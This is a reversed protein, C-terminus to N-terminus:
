SEILVAGEHLPRVTRQYISLWGIEKKPPAALLNKRREALVSEPVELDIVKKAVDISIPDGNAALALPGGEAAEPTAEVALLTKNVLGSAHGDTIVAVKGTLGSGDLAFVFGSAHGFGPGGKLGLGRLIVVDGEKIKGEKLWTLAEHEDDFVVAPGKFTLPRDDIVALKIIASDPTLSGHVINISPRTSLPRSVPRIVEEDAIRVGKLNEGVTHGTVTKADLKLLGELQKMVARTGGAAEFEETTRKGNPRVATLLPVDTAFREFLGYVDVDVHAEKAIAQLHKITNISGSISLIVKAANEFSDPTLIDRPKLDEWVMEVIREGIRRVTRWMNTSNALVPTSGPLTMGLAECACHMSNATGLGACVGPGSIAVDSMARMEDPTLRGMMLHGINCFLDDFDFHEGLYTGSPQYGCTMVITPINLRGAAMLQGPTTKDCSALCVMGDLVPGEVGVEIDNAILDRSSQIYGGHGAGMFNDSPAVTRVEFAVGGAARIAERMKRAIEDLHSFCIAVDSSSNVIAIKPKEMDEDSLGLTLWHARRMFNYVGNSRLERKM